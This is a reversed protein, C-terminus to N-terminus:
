KREWYHYKWKMQILGFKLYKLKHKLTWICFEEQIFLTLIQLFNWIMETVNEEYYQVTNTLLIWWYVHMCFVEQVYFQVSLNKLFWNQSIDQVAHLDVPFFLSTYCFSNM